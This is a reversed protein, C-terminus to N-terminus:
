CRDDMRKGRVVLGAILVSICSIIPLPTRPLVVIVCLAYSVSLAVIVLFMPLSSISVTTRTDLQPNGDYQTSGEDWFTM